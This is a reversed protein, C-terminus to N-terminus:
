WTFTFLNDGYKNDAANSKKPASSDTVIDEIDFHKFEMEPAQYTKKM